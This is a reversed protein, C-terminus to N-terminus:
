DNNKLKPLNNFEPKHRLTYAFFLANCLLHGIHPLGSQPDILEGKLLAFQHRLLSESIETLPFGKKWNDRGSSIVKLNKEKVYSISIEDGKYQIGQEDEYVSYKHAGYELVEVMPELSEFDVLSWQRKGENYRLGREKSM